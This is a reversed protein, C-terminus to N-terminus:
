QSMKVDSWWKWWSRGTQGPKELCLQKCKEKKEPVSLKWKRMQGDMAEATGVEWGRLSGWLHLKLVENSLRSIFKLKSNKPSHYIGCPWATVGGNVQENAQHKMTPAPFLKCSCVRGCLPCAILFFAEVCVVTLDGFEHIHLLFM